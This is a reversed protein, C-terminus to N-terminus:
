RVEQLVLEVAELVNHCAADPRVAFKGDRGAEGTEVLVTRLGLRRGTEIDVTSDGVFTSRRLDINLDRAATLVLEGGPKRCTCAIKYRPDEGAHGREPHHPCYYIADLKAGHEALLTELRAHVREVQEISCLGRAVVPQNTIVVALIDTENLRGIAEAAGDLLRLDEPRHLLPVLDCLTGDRDFFVAPLPHDLHRKEVRGAAWDERVSALREPTGIDKLYERTRYGFIAAGDDLAHPFVDRIFDGPEPRIFRALRGSVVYVGANGLNRCCFSEPRPKGHIAVIRGQGDLEVLDSDAPHDTPHVVLTAAARRSRHFRVLKELDMHVMVDGYLILFDDDAAEILQAVCGSTGLPQSEPQYRLEVDWREGSGLRRHFAALDSRRVTLHIEEIGYRHLLAIQHEVIARGGVELLPKPTQGAVARIRKGEGGAVIIAKM